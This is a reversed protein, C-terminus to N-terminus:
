RTKKLSFVPRRHEDATTTVAEVQRGSRWEDIDALLALVVPGADLEIEGLTFPVVRTPHRYVPAADLLRGVAPIEVQRLIPGTAGCVECGYAQYPVRVAGCSGCEVGLLVVGDATEAWGPAAPPPQAESVIALGRQVNIERPFDAAADKQDALIASL